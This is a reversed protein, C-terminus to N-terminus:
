DAAGQLRPQRKRSTQPGVYEEDGPVNWAYKGVLYTTAGILALYVLTFGILSTLVTGPGVNPSLGQETTLMGFVLWPQRGMETFIWGTANAMFPLAVSPVMLWLFVRRQEFSKRIIFLLGLGALGLMAFGAGVMLRFTWYAVFVNPTYDGPGYTAEAEAQLDKIGKVEGEFQNYAMFSLLGPVKIVFLDRQEPASAVTFLSMAAPNETEWLAEAAAMKMPQITFMYQAQTHGAMIVAVTGILAYITGLRFSRRFMERSPREGPRLLQAASVTLVLFGGTAIAAAITHPFQVWVHGNSLLAWFSEMEARGNRLVYGVPQQMFSNAILIWLASINSGIAVLWISALHAWKPLKNWGFVWLGIFTSEVFFAMLAEIALPAGFIDGVFRSYESWNMGFQFEQVIGTAVGIAFNIIFLKGWFKAMQKYREDGTRFYITQVIAVFLSLGISIPVFFFHYVSTVAFQWRAFFLAAEM